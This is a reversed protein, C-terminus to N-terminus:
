RRRARLRHGDAGVSLYERDAAVRVYAPADAGTGDDDIGVATRDHRADLVPVHVRQPRGRLGQVRGQAVRARRNRLEARPDLLHKSAVAACSGSPQSWTVSQFGTPRSGAPVTASLDSSSENFM